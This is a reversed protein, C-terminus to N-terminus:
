PRVPASVAAAFGLISTERAFAPRDRCATQIEAPNSVMTKPHFIRQYRQIDNKDPRVRRDGMNGFRVVGSLSAAIGDRAGTRETSSNLPPM